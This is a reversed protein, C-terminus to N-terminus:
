PETRDGAVVIRAHTVAHQGSDDGNGRAAMAGPAMPMGNVGTGMSNTPSSIQAAKFGVTRLGTPRGGTAPEFTSTPRTFSTLGAGSFAGAGGAAGAGLGGAAGGGAGLPGAVAEVEAAEQAAASSFVGGTSGM